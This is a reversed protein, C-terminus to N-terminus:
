VAQRRVPAGGAWAQDHDAEMWLEHYWFKVRSMGRVCSGALIPQHLCRATYKSIGAPQVDLLWNSLIRRWCKMSASILPGRQLHESRERSGCQGVDVLLRPSCALQHMMRDTTYQCSYSIPQSPSSYVPCGDRWALGPHHSGPPITGGFIGGSSHASVAHVVVRQTLTM